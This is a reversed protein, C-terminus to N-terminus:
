TFNGNICAMLARKLRLKDGMLMSNEIELSLIKNNKERVEKRLRAM